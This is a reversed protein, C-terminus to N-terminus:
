EKMYLTRPNGHRTFLENTQFLIYNIAENPQNYATLSKKLTVMNPSYSMQKLFLVIPQKMSNIIKNFVKKPNGHQQTYLGNTQSLLVMPQKM